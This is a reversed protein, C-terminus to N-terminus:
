NDQWKKDVGFVGFRFWMKRKQGQKDIVDVCFIADNKSKFWFPGTSIYCYEINVIDCDEEIAWNHITDNRSNTIYVSAFFLIFICGIGFIWILLDSRKRM